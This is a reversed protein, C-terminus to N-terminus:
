EGYSTAVAIFFCALAVAASVLLLITIGILAVIDRRPYGRYDAYRWCM